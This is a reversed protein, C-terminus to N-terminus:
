RTGAIKRVVALQIRTDISEDNHPRNEIKEGTLNLFVDDLTSKRVYMEKCPYGGAKIISATKLVIDISDADPLHILMDGGSTSSNPFAQALSSIGAEDCARVVLTNGGGYRNILDEPAGEAILRGKHLICIRDALHYAEDMYHTTLFVTKDKAKLAKIAEWLSRRAKPDLGASPEDLFVIEPDNVLALAIGVRQKQGGSLDKFLSNRKEELNLEKILLDPDTRKSYMRSFYDLNERVTLLDFAAFSQPLVGIKEKINAHNRDTNMFINGVAVGTVVTNGLISILGKTPLKLLELIEVVTTKGAGNPGLLAFIEGRRVTFSVNYVATLSGYNKLLNSIEIINEAKDPM